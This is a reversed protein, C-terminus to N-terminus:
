ADPANKGAGNHKQGSGQGQGSQGNQGGNGPHATIEGGLADIRDRIQRMTLGSVEEPTVTPDLAQLELFAEYKGFSLGAEHAAAVDARNGSRCTVNADDAYACRNINTLMEVSKEDTAGLVTVTVLEDNELYTAMIESDMLLTLADSYTKNKLTVSRALDEGDENYGTVSVVRDFRNVGIEISPNVDVSIFSVGQFYTRYGGLGVLLMVACAALATAARRFGPAPRAKKQGMKEHLFAKTHQKLSEEARVADFANKIQKDM